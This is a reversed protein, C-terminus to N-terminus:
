ASGRRKGKRLSLKKKLQSFPNSLPRLYFPDNKIEDDTFRDQTQRMYGGLGYDSRVVNPGEQYDYTEGNIDTHGPPFFATGDLPRHSNLCDTIKDKPTARLAEENSERVAELPSHKSDLNREACVADYPGEHHYSYSTVNDLQDIIDPNVLMSNRSYIRQSKSRRPVSSQSERRKKPEVPYHETTGDWWMSPASRVSESVSCSRRSPAHSRSPSAFRAYPNNSSFSTRRSSSQNYPHHPHHLSAMPMCDVAM